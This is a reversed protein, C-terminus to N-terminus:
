LLCRDRVKPPSLLQCPPFPEVKWCYQQWSFRHYQRPYQPCNSSLIFADGHYAICTSSDVSTSFLAIINTYTRYTCWSSTCSSKSQQRESGLESINLTNFTYAAPLSSQDNQTPTQVSLAAAIIPRNNLNVSLSFSTSGSHSDSCAESRSAPLCSFTGHVGCLGSRCLM